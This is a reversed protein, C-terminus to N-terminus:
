QMEKTENDEKELRSTMAGLKRIQGSDFKITVVVDSHLPLLDTVTGKGFLRHVVRDGVKFEADM